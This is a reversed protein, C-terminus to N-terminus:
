RRGNWNGRDNSHPQFPQFFPRGFFFGDRFNRHRSGFLFFGPMAFRSRSRSDWTGGPFGGYGYGFPPWYGSGYQQYEGLKDAERGKGTLVDVDKPDYAPREVRNKEMFWQKVDPHIAPTERPNTQMPKPPENASETKSPPTTKEPSPSPTPQQARVVVAALMLLTLVETWLIGQLKRFSM